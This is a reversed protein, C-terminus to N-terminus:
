IDHKKQLVLECWDIFQNISLNSKMTNIQHAVLQVNDKTYGKGSDIRDVSANTPIHGQGKLFTLPTKSIACLGNQKKLLMKLFEADIECEVDTKRARQRVGRMIYSLHYDIGGAYHRVKQNKSSRERFCKRCESSLIGSKKQYFNQSDASLLKGCKSCPRLGDVTKKRM